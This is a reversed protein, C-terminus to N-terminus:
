AASELSTAWQVTPEPEAGCSAPAAPGERREVRVTVDGLPTTFTVREGDDAVFALGHLEDCGTAARATVEAAQAMPSYLTRGRYLDLPIRGTTVVEVVEEVRDLPIRGLQIGHPLVVLNPAFRHGGLHSAQWLREPPVRHALAEYLPAGLRACCADRRGHTCVLFVPGDIEDGMPLDAVALHEYSPLDNRIARGGRERVDARIVTGGVRRDPRRILVVKGPYGTLQDSVSPALGSDGIADRGWPGRLEVLLWDAGQTATGALPEGAALSLDSCTTSVTV